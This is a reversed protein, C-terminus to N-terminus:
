KQYQALISTEITAVIKPSSARVTLAFELGLAFAVVDDQVVTSGTKASGKAMLVVYPVMTVEM